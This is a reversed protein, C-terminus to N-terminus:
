EEVDRENSVKLLEVGKLKDEVLKTVVKEINEESITEEAREAITELTVEFGKICLNSLKKLIGALKVDQATQNVCFSSIEMLAYYMAVCCTAWLNCDRKLVFCVTVEIAMIVGITLWYSLKDTHLENSFVKKKGILALGENEKSIKKNARIWSIEEFIMCAILFLLAIVVLRWRTIVYTLFTGVVATGMKIKKDM